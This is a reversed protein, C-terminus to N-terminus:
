GTTLFLTYGHRSSQDIIRGDDKGILWGSTKVGLVLSLKVLEEEVESVLETLSEDDYSMILAKSGDGVAGDM